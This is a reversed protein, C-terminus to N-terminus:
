DFSKFWEIAEEETNFLKLPLGFKGSVKIIMNMYYKKFANGDFVSGARKLGAKIAKPLMEAEFWKRNEPSVVGQNRIDSLFNEIPSTKAYDLMRIFADRYEETTGKKKWRVKGLRLEAEYSLEVVESDYFVKSM